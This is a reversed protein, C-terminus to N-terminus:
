PIWLYRAETCHICNCRLPLSTARFVEAWHDSCVAALWMGEDDTLLHLPLHWGRSACDEVICLSAEERFFDLEVAVPTVSPARASLRV